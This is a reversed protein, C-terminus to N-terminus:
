GDVRILPTTVAAQLTEPEVVLGDTVLLTVAAELELPVQCRAHCRVVNFSHPNLEPPRQLVHPQLREGPVDPELRVPLELQVMQLEFHVEFLHELVKRLEPGRSM